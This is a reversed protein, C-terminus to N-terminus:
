LLVCGLDVVKDVKEIIISDTSITIENMETIEKDASRSTKADGSLSHEKLKRRVYAALEGSKSIQSDFIFLVNKPKYEKLKYIIKKLAKKTDEGFVYKSFVGSNDRLFGDMGEIIEKDNLIAEVTILVNYGDVVVTKGEIKEIPISRSRHLRIDKESFVYRQLFNRGKKDLVYHDVVLNLSTRKNYGRDLLYKLDSAAERTNSM